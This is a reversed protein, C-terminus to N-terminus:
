RARQRGPRRSAASRAQRRGPRGPGAAGDPHASPSGPGTCHEGHAAGPIVHSIHSKWGAQSASAIASGGKPKPKGPAPRPEPSEPEPSEPEPPDPPDPGPAPSGSPGSPSGCCNASASRWNASRIDQCPPGTFQSRALFTARCVTAASPSGLTSSLSRWFITSAMRSASRQSSSTVLKGLPTRVACAQLRDSHTSAVRGTQDFSQSGIASLATLAMPPSSVSSGSSNPPSSGASSPEARLATVPPRPPMPPRPEIIRRIPPIITPLWVPAATPASARSTTLEVSTPSGSPGSPVAARRGAPTAAKPAPRDTGSSSIRIKRAKRSAACWRSNACTGQSRARRIPATSSYARPIVTSEAANRSAM